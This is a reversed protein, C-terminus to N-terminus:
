IVSVFSQCSGQTYSSMRSLLTHIIVRRCVPVSALGYDSACTGAFKLIGWSGLKSPFVPGRSCKIATPVCVEMIPASSCKFHLSRDLVKLSAASRQYM